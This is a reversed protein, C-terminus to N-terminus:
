TSRILYENRVASRDLLEICFCICRRDRNVSDSLTHLFASLLNTDSPHLGYSTKHTVSPCDGVGSRRISTFCERRWSFFHTPKFTTVLPKQSICTWGPDRDPADVVPHQYPYLAIVQSPLGVRLSRHPASISDRHPRSMRAHHLRAQGRLNPSTFGRGIM